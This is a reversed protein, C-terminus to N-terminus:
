PRSNGRDRSLHHLAVLARLAKEPSSFVPIQHEELWALTEHAGPEMGAVWLVLPKGAEPARHFLKFIERPLMLLRDPIQIHLADVNPDAAMSAVLTEYVTIPDGFQLTVGLDFPNAPMDWSPFVPRLRELTGAAVRAMAM